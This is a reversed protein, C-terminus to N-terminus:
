PVATRSPGDARHVLHRGHVDISGNSSVDIPERAAGVRKVAERMM